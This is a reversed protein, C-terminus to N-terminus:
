TSNTGLSAVDHHLVTGASNECCDLGDSSRSRHAFLQCLSSGRCPGHWRPQCNKRRKTHLCRQKSM